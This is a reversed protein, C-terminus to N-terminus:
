IPDYETFEFLVQGTPLTDDQGVFIGTIVADCSARISHEMKMAEMVLLLEGKAVAQGKNFCIKVIKGPMPSLEQQKKINDVPPIVPKALNESSEQSIDYNISVPLVEKKPLAAESREEVIKIDRAVIEEVQDGIHDQDDAVIVFSADDELEDHNTESEDDRELVVSHYKVLDDYYLQSDEQGSIYVGSNIDAVIGLEATNSVSQSVNHVEVAREISSIDTEVHDRVIPVFQDSMSSDSSVNIYADGSNIYDRVKDEEFFQRISRTEKPEPIVPQAMKDLTTKTSSHLKTGELLNFRKGEINQYSSKSAYDVFSAVFWNDNTSVVTTPRNNNYSNFSNPKNFNRKSNNLSLKGTQYNTNNLDLCVSMLLLTKASINSLESFVAQSSRLQYQFTIQSFYLPYLHQQKNLM